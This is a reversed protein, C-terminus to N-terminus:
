TGEVVEIDWAGDAYTYFVCPEESVCATVHPVGAPVYWYTGPGMEVEGKEGAYPNTVIGEVVVGHYGGSHVHLPTRAGPDFSILKGHAEKDWEGYVVAFRVGPIIEAWEVESAHVISGGGPGAPAAVQAHAPLTFAVTLTTLALVQPLSHRM